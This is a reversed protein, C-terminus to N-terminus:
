WFVNCVGLGFVPNVIRRYLTCVARGCRAWPARSSGLTNGCRGVLASDLVSHLGWAAANTTLMNLIFEEAHREIRTCQTKVANGCRKQRSCLRDKPSRFSKQVSHLRQSSARRTHCSKLFFTAVINILMMQCLQASITVMIRDIVSGHDVNCRKYRRIVTDVLVNLWQLM